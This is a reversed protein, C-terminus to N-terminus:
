PKCEECPRKGAQIAEARTRYGVRNEPTIRSARRCIARHFLDSSASAVYATTGQSAAPATPPTQPAQGSHTQSYAADRVYEKAHAAHANWNATYQEALAPSKIVLLNEANSEEASKTFNFSGTIVVQGDLIMVKNHAIAHRDDIRTPVGQNALFDAETYKESEQSEDLIVQVQVGRQHAEVLAKAIPASTFSYAQVLISSQAAGIVQVVAETCGGRPSFHVSIPPLETIRAREEPKVLCGGALGALVLTLLAVLRRV